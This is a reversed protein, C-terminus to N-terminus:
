IYLRFSSHLFFFDVILVKFRCSTRSHSALNTLVLMGDCSAVIAYSEGDFTQWWLSGCIPAGHLKSSVKIETVDDLAAAVPRNRHHHSTLIPESTSQAHALVTQTPSSKLMDPILAGFLSGLTSQRSSGPQEISPSRVDIPSASQISSAPLATTRHHESGPPCSQAVAAALSPIGISSYPLPRNWAETHTFPNLSRVQSSGIDTVFHRHFVDVSHLILLNYCPNGQGVQLFSTVPVIYMSSDAAVVLLWEGSPSFDLAVIKRTRDKWWPV